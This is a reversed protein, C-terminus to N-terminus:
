GGQTHRMRLVQVQPAKACHARSYAHPLQYVFNAFPKLAFPKVQHHHFWAVFKHGGAHLAGVAFITNEFVQFGQVFYAM